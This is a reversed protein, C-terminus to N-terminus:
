IKGNILLFFIIYFNTNLNNTKSVNDKCKMAAPFNSTLHEVADKHGVLVAIHLPSRGYEDKAVALKKRELAQNLDRIGETQVAKFVAGIREQPSSANINNIQLYKM